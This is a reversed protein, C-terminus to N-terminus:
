KTSENTTSEDTSKMYMRATAPTAIRFRAQLEEISAGQAALLTAASHRLSFPTIRRVKGNKINAKEFYFNVRERIGRTTMRKGRTRNGASMCLPEHGDAESRYMLYASFADKVEPPLIVVTEKSTMGKSQVYLVFTGDVTTLDGINARILEIESLGCVAMAKLIAFDRHTREDMREVSQMVQAIQEATLTERSHTLPRKGGKVGTAPNEHLVGAQILYKFFVRLATLYTSVSVPSLKKKKLLYTKYREVSKMSAAFKGEKELWRFFERLAREYTGRTEPKRKRLDRLFPEHHQCLTRRSLMKPPNKKSKM